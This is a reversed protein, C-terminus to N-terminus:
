MVLSKVCEVTRRPLIQYLACINTIVIIISVSTNAATTLRDACYVM